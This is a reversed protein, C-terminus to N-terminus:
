DDVEAEKMKATSKAQHRRLAAFADEAWRCLRFAARRRFGALPVAVGIVSRREGWLSNIMPHNEAACSDMWSIDPRDLVQFNELQILVGPSFRAYDEDFAIKFSFSGPPALFNVLMAIPRGDLDMRLMDLRGAGFAGTVAQRFFAESGPDCGLASEAKGKWGKKELALFADCWPKLQGSHHLRSTELIGAEVLRTSIRKLEKRKKKRVTREYYIQPSLRSELLARECRDVVDCPRGRAQAAETLGRHVPGDETLKQIHLFGKAWPDRDLADLIGSWFAQEQGARVLPSGLFSHAHVWNQVHRVPARAYHPSICVPLLGILSPDAPSGSWVEIMRIDHAPALNRLAAEAFWLEGFANPEAAEEALETWQQRLRQPATHASGFSTWIGAIPAEEAPAASWPRRPEAPDFIASAVDM